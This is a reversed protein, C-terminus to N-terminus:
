VCPPLLVLPLALVATSVAASSYLAAAATAFFRGSSPERPMRRATAFALFAMGALTAAALATVALLVGNIWTQSGLEPSPLGSACGVSMVGYAVCLWAFWALLGYILHRPHTVELKM